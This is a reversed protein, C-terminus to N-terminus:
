TLGAFHKNFLYVTREGLSELIFYLLLLKNKKGWELSLFPASVQTEAQGLGGEGAWGAPRARKTKAGPQVEGQREVKNISPM